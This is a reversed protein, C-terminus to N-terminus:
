KAPPAPTPPPTITHSGYGSLNKRSSVYIAYYEPAKKQFQTALKDLVKVINQSDAQLDTLKKTLTAHEITAERPSTKANNFLLLATELESIENASIGYQALENSPIAKALNLMSQTTSILQQFSMLMIDSSTFNTKAELITDPKLIGYSHLAGAVDIVCQVLNVHTNSKETTIGSNTEDQLAITAKMQENNSKLKAINAAFTPILNISSQNKEAETVILEDQALKANRHRNM